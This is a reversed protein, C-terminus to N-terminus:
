AVLTSQPARSGSGGGPATKGRLLTALLPNFCGRVVMAGCFGLFCTYVIYLGGGLHSLGLSFLVIVTLCALTLVEAVCRVVM